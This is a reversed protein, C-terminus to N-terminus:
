QPPVTFAIQLWAARTPSADTRSPTEQRAAPVGAELEHAGLLNWRSFSACLRIVRPGSCSGDLRLGFGLAPPGSISTRVGSARFTTFAGTSM